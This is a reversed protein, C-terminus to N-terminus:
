RAVGVPVPPGDCSPFLFPLLDPNVLSPDLGQMPSVFRSESHVSLSGDPHRVLSISPPTWANEPSQLMFLGSNGSDPLGLAFPGIAESSVSLGQPHSSISSSALSFVTARTGPQRCGTLFCTMFLALVARFIIAM